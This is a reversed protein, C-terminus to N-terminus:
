QLGIWIINPLFVASFIQFLSIYSLKSMKENHTALKIMLYCGNKREIGYRLFALIANWVTKAIIISDYFNNEKAQSGYM